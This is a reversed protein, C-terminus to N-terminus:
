NTSPSVELHFAGVGMVEYKRGNMEPFQLSHSNTSLSVGMPVTLLLM